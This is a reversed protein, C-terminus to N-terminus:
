NYSKVVSYEEMKVVAVIILAALASTFCNNCPLWVNRHMEGMAYQSSVCQQVAAYVCHHSDSLVTASSM